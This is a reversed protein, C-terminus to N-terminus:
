FLEFFEDTGLTPVLRRALEEISGLEGHLDIVGDISQM